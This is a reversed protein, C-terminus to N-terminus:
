WEEMAVITVMKADSFSRRLPDHWLTIYLLITDSPAGEEGGALAPFDKTIGASVQIRAPPVFSSLHVRDTPV